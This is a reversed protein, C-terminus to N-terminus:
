PFRTVSVAKLAEYLEAAHDELHARIVPIEPALPHYSDAMAECLEGIESISVTELYESFQSDWRPTKLSLGDMMGQVTAAMTQKGAWVVDGVGDMRDLRTRISLNVLFLLMAELKETENKESMEVMAGYQRVTILKVSLGKGSFRVVFDGAAHHWPFVQEFTDPDYCSTLIRAVQRYLSATESPSLFRPHAGGDWVRIPHRGDGEDSTMHFEHFDEFWAGMFLRVAAGNRLSVEGCAVVKPLDSGAPGEALRKLASFEQAICRKGPATVAVNIVFLFIRGGARVELRAPHYFQGHKVLFVAIEDIDRPDFSPLGAGCLAAELASFEKDTLFQRVANFYDGYTIGPAESESFAAGETNRSLPFAALWLAGNESVAESRNSLYYRFPICPAPDKYTELPLTM